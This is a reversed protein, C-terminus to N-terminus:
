VAVVIAVLSTLIRWYGYYFYCDFNKKECCYYCHVVDVHVRVVHVLVVSVVVAAVVIATAVVAVVVAVAAVAVVAAPVVVVAVVLRLIPWTPLEQLM